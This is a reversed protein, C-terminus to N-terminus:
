RRLGVRFDLLAPVLPARARRHDGHANRGVASHGRRERAPTGGTCLRNEPVWAALLGFFGRCRCPCVRDSAVLVQRGALAIEEGPREGLLIWGGSSAPITTTERLHM